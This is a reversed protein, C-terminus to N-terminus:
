RVFLLLLPLFASLTSEGLKVGENNDALSTALPFFGAAIEGLAALAAGKWGLDTKDLLSRKHEPNAKRWSRIECWLYIAEAVSVLSQECAM